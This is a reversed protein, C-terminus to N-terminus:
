GVKSRGTNLGEVTLEGVLRDAPGGAAGGDEVEDVSAQQCVPIILTAGGHHLAEEGDAKVVGVGSEHSASLDEKLLQSYGLLNNGHRQIGTTYTRGKVRLAPNVAM